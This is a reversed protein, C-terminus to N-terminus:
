WRYRLGASLNHAELGDGQQYDYDVFLDMAGKSAGFGVGILGRDKPWTAGRVAFGTDPAGAFAVAFQAALDGTSHLWRAQLNPALTWEGRAYGGIWRLGASATTRTANQSRGILDLEQAGSERFNQTDVRDRQVSLLPQLRSAGLDINWGGELYFGLRHSGYEAQASRHLSGVDIRRTIDSNWWAFSLVADLYAREGQLSTYLAVNKADTEGGDGARFDADVRMANASAGILWNETGWADFGVAVGHLDIDAGHANGDGDLESAAGYGRAWAGGQLHQAGAAERREALRRSVTQGYLAHGELMLGAFSAHAEGSLRDFGALAGDVDLTTLAEIVTVLDGPQGGGSVTDITTGVQCQNFTRCVDAFRTDNRVVDLFVHNPDYALSLHVFPLDQTLADFEGSVGGAADILTYRTGEAYQGPLKIVQVGGGEITAAGAVDLLDGTGGPEVEALLTAGARHLYDGTLTLTGISNGAAVTGANDVSGVAGSGGLTAGAAILTLGGLTGDVFLTGAQVRTNGTYTNSGTLTLTGDGTKTLAGAGDITGALGLDAATEFTGGGADLTIGRATTFAASNHLSGGDFTLAGAADGLNADGAVQLRGRDIRTGGGYTNVGSLVLTGTDTKVLGGAGVIPAAITATVAPDVRIVSEAGDIRLAGDTGADLTYGAMFQAGAVAQEGVVSVSGGAGGFVAFTDDDWRGNVAGDSATWNDNDANWLGDGDDVTGNNHEDAVAGDWFSLTLGTSNILNVQGDIATQLFLDQADAGSPLAGLDLGNDTLAGGYNMLRYVGVGFGGIDTIDLTGDLTLDGGIEILDNVGSGIVGAQGLEYDLISGGSLSLSGLTLTGASSGPALIGGGQVAVDGGIAGSGGLTAGGFVTTATDGLTGEVLLTGGQVHTAGSNSSAGGLLTTGALQNVTGSGSIAADFVYDGNTHNFNITGSGAGFQLATADLTGAAVAPDGAAAGLNLVGTAGGQEALHVIGTAGVVGGDAISLVGSGRRGIRLDGANTWTSGAGTVTAAGAGGNQEGLVGSGSSVVGGIAVQLEGNASGGVQLWQDVTLVSDTGTVTVTGTAGIEGITAFASTVAGGGAILLEGSIGDHGVQLINGITWTSGAGTVTATGTADDVYGVIGRLSDVAGGAAITLAGSGHYGVVVDGDTNWASGAGSISATGQGDAQNGILGETSGVLGGNEVTLAGTGNVGVILSGNSTWSSGSGTVVATGQGEVTEGLRGLSSVVQGSDAIRLTGTANNGVTLVGSGLWRSGAGSVTLTGQADQTHGISAEAPNVTAGALVDLSGTGNFGVFLTGGANWVSGPGTVTVTGTGGGAGITAGAGATEILSGGEIALSGNGSTGVGLGQLVLSGGGTVTASGTGAPGVAIDLRTAEVHGGDAVLLTSAGERGVTLLGDVLWQSGTGSVTADGQSGAGAGLLANNAVDVVGGADITLTGAGNLGVAFEGATGTHTLMSGVGSVELTGQAGAEQGLTVAGASAAGGAGISLIGNGGDSGGVTLADSVSLDSDDGDITLSGQGGAFEGIMVTAAQVAGGNEIALAANGQQAVTLGGPTTLISGTGSITASAISDPDFGFVIANSVGIGIDVIGGDLVFLRGTGSQGGFGVISSTSLRSGAGSVTVTGVGGPVGVAGGGGAGVSSAALTGGNIISLNGVLGPGGGLTLTRVSAAGGSIVTPNPAVTNLVGDLASPPPQGNDWNGGDFWDDSVAGTWNQAWGPLPAVLLLTATLLLRAAPRTAVPSAVPARLARGIGAALANNAHRSRCPRMATRRAIRRM